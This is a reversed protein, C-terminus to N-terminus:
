DNTAKESFNPLDFCEGLVEATCLKSILTRLIGECTLRCDPYSKLQRMVDQRYWDELHVDTPTYEALSKSVDETAVTEENQVGQGNVNPPTPPPDTCGEHDDLFGLEQRKGRIQRWFPVPDDLVMVQCDPHQEPSFAASALTELFHNEELLSALMESLVDGCVKLACELDKQNQAIALQDDHPIPPPAIWAEERKMQDYNLSRATVTVAQADELPWIRKGFIPKSGSNRKTSAALYGIGASDTPHPVIKCVFDMDFVKAVPGGHVHFTIKVTQGLEIIGEVPDVTCDKEYETLLPEWRFLAPRFEDEDKVLVPRRYNIFMISHTSNHIATLGCDVLQESLFLCQWPLTLPRLYSASLQKVEYLNDLSTKGELTCCEKPHTLNSDYVRLSLDVTISQNSSIESTCGENLARSVDDYAVAVRAKYERSEMPRFIWSIKAIGGPQITGETTQLEIIPQEVGIQNSYSDCSSFSEEGENLIPKFGTVRFCVPVESPNRLQFSQLMGKRDAQMCQLSVPPLTLSECLPQLHATRPELILSRLMFVLERGNTIKVRVPLKHHGPVHHRCSIRIRVSEGCALKCIRPTIEFIEAEEIKIQEKTTESIYVMELWNERPPRIQSPFLFQIEAPVSGNNELRLFVQTSGGSQQAVVFSHLENASAAYHQLFADTDSGGFYLGNQTGRLEKLLRNCPKSGDCQPAVGLPIEFTPLLSFRSSSRLDTSQKRETATPQAQLCENIRSLQLEHWARYRGLKPPPGEIVVDTFRVTPYVGRFCVTTLINREGEAQRKEENKHMEGTHFQADGAPCSYYVSCEFSKAASPEVTIALMQSGQAPIFLATRELRCITSENSMRGRSSTMSPGTAEGPAPTTCRHSVGLCVNLPCSTLNFLTISTVVSTGVAIPGLHLLRNKVGLAGEESTLIVMLTRRKTAEPSNPLFSFVEADSPEAYTFEFVVDTRDRGPTTPAFSWIFSQSSDAAITGFKPSVDLIGTYNEPITWSYKIPFKSPNDVRFHKDSRAGKATPSFYLADESEFQIECVGSFITVPIVLDMKTWHPFKISQELCCSTHLLAQNKLSTLMLDTKNDERVYSVLSLIKFERPLLFGSKSVCALQLRTKPLNEDADCEVESDEPSRSSFEIQYSLPSNESLNSLMVNSFALRQSLTGSDLALAHFKPSNPTIVVNPPGNLSLNQYTHGWCKVIVLDPVSLDAKDSMDEDWFAFGEFIREFYTNVADPRFQICFEAKSKPRIRANMPEIKFPWHSVADEGAVHLIYPEPPNFENTNKWAPALRLPSWRLVCPQSYNNTVLVRRAFCVGTLHSPAKDTEASM